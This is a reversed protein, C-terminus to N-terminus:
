SNVCQLRLQTANKINQHNAEARYEELDKKLFQLRMHYAQLDSIPISIDRCKKNYDTQMVRLSAELDDLQATIFAMFHMDQEVLAQDKCWVLKYAIASMILSGDSTSVSVSSKTTVGLAHLMLGPAIRHSEMAHQIVGTAKYSFLDLVASITAVAAKVMLNTSVKKASLSAANRDSPDVPDPPNLLDTVGGSLIANAANQVLSSINKLDFTSESQYDYKIEQGFIKQDTWKNSFYFNDVFKDFEQSKPKLVEDIHKQENNVDLRFKDDTKMKDEIAKQKGM